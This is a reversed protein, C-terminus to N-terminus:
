ISTLGLFSECSTSISSFLDNRTTEPVFAEVFRKIKEELRQQRTSSDDVGILLQNFLKRLLWRPAFEYRSRSLHNKIKFDDRTLLENFLCMIFVTWRVLQNHHFIYSYNQRTTSAVLVSTLTFLSSSSFLKISYYACISRGVDTPLLRRSDSKSHRRGVTVTSNSRGLDM